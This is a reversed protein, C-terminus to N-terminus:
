GREFADSLDTGPLLRPRSLWGLGAPDYQGLFPSSAAEAALDSPVNQDLLLAKLYDALLIGQTCSCSADYHMIGRQFRQYVFNHNNPDFSPPSTPLGWLELNLLPVLSPDGGGTPFADRLTVTTLFTKGFNVPLGNWQDPANALAWAIADAGYTPDDPTPATAVLGADVGPVTSHNFRTYPLLGSDLLNLTRPSGGPTVQVIERQFFQTKFGYLMLTRSTPYGFTRVGGRHTFYNWITDDDIRYGTQPFYRADHPQPPVTPALPLLAFTHRQTPLSVVDPDLQSQGTPLGAADYQTVAVTFPLRLWAQMKDPPDFSTGGYVLLESPGAIVFSNALRPLGFVSVPGTRDATYTDAFFNEPANTPYVWQAGLNRAADVSQSDVVQGGGARYARIAALDADTLDNPDRALIVLLRVGSLDEGALTGVVATTAGARELSVLDAFNYGVFSWIDVLRTSGILRDPMANPALVLARPGPGPSGDMIKRVAAFSASVRSFLDDAAYTPHNGDNYLGQGRVNYAWVAIGRLLGGAERSIDANMRLSVIADAITSPDDSGQSLGWSNGSSWLWYPRHYRASFHGITGLLAALSTVVADNLPETTPGNRLNADWSPQFNPPTQSFLDELAPAQQNNRAPSGDFAITVTMAPDLSQWQQAAWAAFDVIVHSQFYGLQTIRTPDNGVDAFHYGYQNFFVSDASDSYDVGTPENSLMVMVIVDRYPAVFQEEFWQYYRATDGRFVGAYPAADEGGFNLISGDPGRRLSDPHAANWADGMQTRYGIPLVVKIGVSRAADLARRQAAIISQADGYQPNSPDLSAAYVPYSLGVERANPDVSVPNSHGIWVMNAGAHRMRQLASVFDASSLNPYADMVWGTYSSSADAAAKPTAPPPTWLLSLLM